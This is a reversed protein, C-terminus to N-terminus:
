TFNIGRVSLSNLDYGGRGFQTYKNNYEKITSLPINMSFNFSM